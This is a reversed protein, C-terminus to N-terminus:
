PKAVLKKVNRSLEGLNVLVCPLDQRWKLCCSNRPLHQNCRVTEVKGLLTKPLLVAKQSAVKVCIKREEVQAFPPCIFRPSLFITAASQKIVGSEVLIM